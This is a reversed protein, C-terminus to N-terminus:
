YQQPNRSGFVAGGVNTRSKLALCRKPSLCIEETSAVEVACCMDGRKTGSFAEPIQQMTWEQTPHETVGFHVVGHREHSLVIGAFFGKCCGGVNPAATGMMPACKEQINPWTLVAGVESTLQASM